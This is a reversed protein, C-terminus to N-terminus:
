RKLPHVNGTDDEKTEVNGADVEWWSDPHFGSYITILAENFQAQFTTLPLDNPINHMPAELERAVEHIGLFCLVTVFNMICAFSLDNVYNYSLVPFIFLIATTFFATM